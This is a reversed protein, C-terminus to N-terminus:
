KTESKGGTVFVAEILKINRRPLMIEAYRIVELKFDISYSRVKEGIHSSSKLEGEEMTFTFAVIFANVTM